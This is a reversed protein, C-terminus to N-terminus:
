RRKVVPAGVARATEASQQMIVRMDGHLSDLERLIAAHESADRAQAADYGAEKTTRADHEERAARELALVQKVTALEGLRARVAWGAGALSLAAVIWWRASRAIALLPRRPPEPQPLAHAADSM